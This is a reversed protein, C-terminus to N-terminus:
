STAFHFLDIIILVIGSFFHSRFVRGVIIQATHVKTSSMAPHLM